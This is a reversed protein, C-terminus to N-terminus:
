RLAGESVVRAARRLLGPMAWRHGPALRPWILRAPLRDYRVCTAVSLRDEEVHVVLHATMDASSAELRIWDDGREAIKWGGIRESGNWPRLGLLGRWVIQGGVGAAHEVAARAWREPSAQVGLPTEISFVDVYDANAVAPLSRIAEPAQRERLVTTM